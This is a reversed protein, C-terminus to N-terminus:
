GMRWLRATGIGSWRLAARVRETGRELRVSKALIFPSDQEPHHLNRTSKVGDDQDRAIILSLSKLYKKEIADFVGKQVWQQLLAGEHLERTEEPTNGRRMVSRVQKQGQHEVEETELCHLQEVEMGAVVCEIKSRSSDFPKM